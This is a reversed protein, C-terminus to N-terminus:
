DSTDWDDGSETAALEQATKRLTKMKAVVDYLTEKEKLDTRSQNNDDLESDNLKKTAKELDNTAKANEEELQVLQNQYSKVLDPFKDSPRQTKKKEIKTAALAIAIKAAKIDAQAKTKERQANNIKSAANQKEQKAKLWVKGIAEILVNETEKVLSAAKNLNESTLILTENWLSKNKAEETNAQTREHVRKVDETYKNVLNASTEAKKLFDIAVSVRGDNTAKKAEDADLKVNGAFRAVNETFNGSEKVAEKM